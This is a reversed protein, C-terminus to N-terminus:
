PAIVPICIDGKFAPKVEYRSLFRDREPGPTTILRVFAARSGMRRSEWESYLADTDDIQVATRIDNREM